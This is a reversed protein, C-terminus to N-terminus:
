FRKSFEDSDEAKSHGPIPANEKAQSEAVNEVDTPMESEVRVSEDFDDEAGVEKNHKSKEKTLVTGTATPVTRIDSDKEPLGSGVGRKRSFEPHDKDNYTTGPKHESPLGVDRAYFSDNALKRSPFRETKKGERIFFWGEDAGIGRLYTKNGKQNEIIGWTPSNDCDFAMPRMNSM